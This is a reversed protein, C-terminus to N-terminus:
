KLAAVSAVLDLAKQHLQSNDEINSHTVGTILQNDINHENGLNARYLKQGGIAFFRFWPPNQYFNVVKDINIPVGNSGFSVYQSPDFSIALPIYSNVERALRMISTVGYSHGIFVTPDKFNKVREAMRSWDTYPVVIVYDVGPLKKLKLALIDLGASFTNGALGRFLVVNIM